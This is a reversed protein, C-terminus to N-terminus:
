VFTSYRYTYPGCQAAFPRCQKPAWERVTDHGGARSTEMLLSGQRWWGAWTVTRHAAHGVDGIGAMEAGDLDRPSHDVLAGPFLAHPNSDREFPPGLTVLRNPMARTSTCAWGTTNTSNESPLAVQSCTAAPATETELPLPCMEARRNRGSGKM